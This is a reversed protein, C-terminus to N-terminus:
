GGATQPSVSAESGPQVVYNEMFTSNSDQSPLTAGPAKAEMLESPRTSGDITMGPNNILTLRAQNTITSNSSSSTTRPPPAYSTTPTFPNPNSSSPPPSVLGIPTGNFSTNVAPKAGNTITNTTSTTSTTNTTTNTLSPPPSTYAVSGNTFSPPPAYNGAPLGFNAPNTMDVPPSAPSSSPPPAYALPLAHTAVSNTPQTQQLVSPPPSLQTPSAVTM